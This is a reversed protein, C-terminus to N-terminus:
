LYKSLKKKDNNKKKEAKDEAKRMLKKQSQKADIAKSAIATLYPIADEPDYGSSIASDESFTVNIWIQYSNNRGDVLIARKKDTQSVTTAKVTYNPDTLNLNLISAVTLLLNCEVYFADQLKMTADDKVKIALNGRENYKIKVKPMMIKEIGTVLSLDISNGPLIFFYGNMIGLQPIPKRVAKGNASLEEYTALEPHFYMRLKITGNEFLVAIQHTYGMESMTKDSFKMVLNHFLKTMLTQIEHDFGIPKFTTFVIGDSSIMNPYCADTHMIGAYDRIPNEHQVEKKNKKKDKSM